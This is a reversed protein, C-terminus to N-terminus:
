ARQAHRWLQAASVLLILVLIPMLVSSPVLGVLVGGLVSGGISGGAMSALFPAHDRVVTFSRDRSYRTFGTVMTPLSVLLSLSGALRIDLGFMLVFTPILLEGGAVGLLAAVTGIGFGVIVAAATRAPGPAFGTSHAVHGLLLIAAIAVLLLAIVRYLTKSRMRTAWSAGFWAGAISGALLNAAETWHEGVLAWPVGAARSPLAATVVVLSLAKNLIVAQLPPFRFPGM